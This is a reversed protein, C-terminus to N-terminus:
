PVSRIRWFKNNTTDPINTFIWNGSIDAPNTVQPIWNVPSLSFSCDLAYNTGILGVFSLRIKGGSQLQGIFNKYGFPAVILSAVSSTVSGSSSSIIVSYHGANAASVKNINLSPLGNPSVRRIRNNGQDSIFLNGSVDL